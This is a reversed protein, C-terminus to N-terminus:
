YITVDVTDIYTGEYNDDWDDVAFTWVYSGVPPIGNWVTFGNVTRLTAGAARIPTASKSWKRTSHKYWWTNASNRTVFVWWDARQGNLDGPDLAITIAVGTPDPYSVPGDSGNAKIDPVPSQPGLELIEVSALPQANEDRGGVAYIRQSADLYVAGFQYRGVNLDPGTTWTGTVPDLIEVTKYATYINGPCGAILYIADAVTVAEAQGGHGSPPGTFTTWSDNAIDYRYYRGYSGFVYIYDGHVASAPIQMTGPMSAGQSWTDTATDLIYLTDLSGSGGPQFGGILYIDTGVAEATSWYLGALMTPGATWTNSAIDYVQCIDSAGYSGFTYIRDGVVAAALGEQGTPLSALETWSTDGEYLVELKDGGNWGGIAYIDGDHEITDLGHRAYALSPGTIWTQALGAAPFVLLIGIGALIALCKPNFPNM